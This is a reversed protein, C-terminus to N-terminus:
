ASASMVRQGCNTCMGSRVVVGETEVEVYNRTFPVRNAQTTERTGDPSVYTVLAPYLHNGVQDLTM